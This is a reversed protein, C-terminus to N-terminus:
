LKLEYFREKKEFIWRDRSRMNKIESENKNRIQHNLRFKSIWVKLFGYSYLKFGVMGKSTIQDFIAGTLIYRVLKELEYYTIIFYLPVSM